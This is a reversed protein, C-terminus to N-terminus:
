VLAACMTNFEMNLIPWRVQLVAMWRDEWYTIWCVLHPRKWAGDVDSLFSCNSTSGKPHPASSNVRRYAGEWDGLVSYYGPM